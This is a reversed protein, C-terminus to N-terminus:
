LLIILTNVGFTRRYTMAQALGTILQIGLTDGVADSEEQEAYWQLPNFIAGGNRIRLGITGPLSFIRV